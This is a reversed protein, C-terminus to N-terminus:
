SVAMQSEVGRGHGHTMQSLLAQLSIESNKQSSMCVCVSVYYM